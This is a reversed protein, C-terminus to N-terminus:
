RGPGPPDHRPRRYTDDAQPFPPPTPKTQPKTRTIGPTEPHGTGPLPGPQEVALRIRETTHRNRLQLLEPLARQDKPRGAATKSRIVDDLSAVAAHTTGIQQRIAGVILDGYKTVLNLMSLGALADANTAFPLGGDIGEVRIRAELETLAAALRTLNDRTRNPTVDLDYTPRTAGYITAAYGGIVVCEVQHRELVALIEHPNFVTTM